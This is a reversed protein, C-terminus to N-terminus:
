RQGGSMLSYLCCDWVSSSPLNHCCFLFNCRSRDVLFLGEDRQRHGLIETFGFSGDLLFEAGKVLNLLGVGFDVLDIEEAALERELDLIDFVFDLSEVGTDGVGLCVNISGTFLNRSTLVPNCLSFLRQCLVVLLAVVHLVVALKFGDGLLDFVLFEFDGCGALMDAFCFQQDIGAITQHFIRLGNQSEAVFVESGLTLFELADHSLRCLVLLAQVSLTGLKDGLNVLAHEVSVLTDALIGVVFQGDDGNLTVSAATAEVLNGRLAPEVDLGTLADDHALVAATDKDARREALLFLGQVTHGLRFSRIVALLDVKVPEAFLRIGAPTTRLTLEIPLTFAQNFPTNEDMPIQAWGIQILRGPTNSFCQSAYFRGYHVRFKGEHEPVFTKGDFDGVVYQGDAAWLVWRTNAPDGDVALRNLNPCEFFGSIEGTREWNKRDQSQYFAILSESDREDYVSMLWTKTEPFWNLQPDRGRHPVLLGEYTWTRGSDHSVALAGGVATDTFFALLDGNGADWAPVACGSFCQGVAMSPVKKEKPLENGFPRLSLPLEEWHVLDKSVAHGWYMNGWPLGVPNSQWFLHFEGNWFVMGNPDNNWGQIQSFRLQPRLREAFLPERRPVEALNRVLALSEATSGAGTSKLTLTQGAYEQVDLFSWWNAQEPANALTVIFQHVRIGNEDTIEVTQKEASNCIPLILFRNEVKIQRVSDACATLALFACFCFAIFRKM